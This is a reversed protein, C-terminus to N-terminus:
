SLAARRVGDRGKEIRGVVKRLLKEVVRVEAWRKGARGLEAEVGSIEGRERIEVRRVEKWARLLPLSSGQRLLEVAIKCGLNSPLGAARVRRALSGAKGWLPFGM